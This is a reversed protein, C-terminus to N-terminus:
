WRVKGESENRDLTAHMGAPSAHNNRSQLSLQIAPNSGGRFGDRMFPRSNLFV